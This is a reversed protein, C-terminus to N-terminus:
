VIMGPDETIFQLFDRTTASAIWSLMVNQPSIGMDGLIHDIIEGM